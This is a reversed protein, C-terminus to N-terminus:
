RIELISLSLDIARISKTLAGVSIYDVGTQAFAAITDRSIGGSAELPIQAPAAIQVARKLNELSFNDVLIRDPKAAIAEELEALTEVEVEILLGKKREKAKAVAKTIGQCAKIHNEKILFADYLGLRHNQGGGCRVAYKQAMRLGPLTKRTDLIQTKYGKVAQVYHYTETATASLTQLFNLATREGTLLSQAPGQLTCLTMGKNLWAGEEVQWDLHIKRDLAQFVAEVWPIGCCLMPERSIIQAFAVSEKPLLAASEDGSGIDEALADLVAKAIEKKDIM